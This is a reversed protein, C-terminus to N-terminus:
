RGTQSGLWESSAGRPSALWAACGDTPAAPVWAFRLDGRLTM